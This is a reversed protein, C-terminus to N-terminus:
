RGAAAPHEALLESRERELQELNFRVEMPVHGGTAVALLRLERDSLEQLRLAWWPAPEESPSQVLSLPARM